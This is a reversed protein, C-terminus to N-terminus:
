KQLECTEIWRAIKEAAGPTGMRERGVAGMERMRVPDDLLQWVAAAILAPFRGHVLLLAEGLLEKQADAFRQNYQSGRGYFVIVPIGSGAAQENGTGSLGVVLDSKALLEAFGVKTFGAPVSAEKTAVILDVKKKQKAIEKAVREFDELNKKADSRTGPLFGIRVRGRGESEAGREMEHLPPTSNLSSPTLNDMLPNGVYDFGYVEATARDRAFVKKAYKKLLWLEWPTYGFGFTKYYVTKNVGVFIFPAQVILAGILPVIDGIAVVLDVQGRLSKLKKINDVTHGILGAYLDSFLFRLNRLAFGGSPLKEKVLPLFTSTIAPSLHKGIERAVQDEGHGNSLFLIKKM